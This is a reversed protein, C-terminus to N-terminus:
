IIKCKSEVETFTYNDSMVFCRDIFEVEMGIKVDGIWCDHGINEPDTIFGGYRFDAYKESKKGYLEDKYLPHKPLMYIRYMGGRKKMFGLTEEKNVKLNRM